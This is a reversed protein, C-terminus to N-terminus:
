FWLGIRGSPRAASKFSGRALHLWRRRRQSRYFVLRKQFEDPLSSGSNGHDIGPDVDKATPQTQYPFPLLPPLTQTSVHASILCLIAVGFWLSLRGLTIGM